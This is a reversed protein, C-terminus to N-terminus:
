RPRAKSRAMFHLVILALVGGLAILASGEVILLRGEKIFVLLTIFAFAVIAMWAVLRVLRIATNAIPTTTRSPIM